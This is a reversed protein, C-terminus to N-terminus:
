SNRNEVQVAHRGKLTIRTSRYPAFFRGPEGFRKEIANSM